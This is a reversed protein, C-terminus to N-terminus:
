CYRWPTLRKELVLVSKNLFYSVVGIAIMGSIIEASRGGISYVSWIYYGIGSRGGVFEAAVICMWGVGLGIRLGTIVSPLVAPFIVRFIIDKKKAGCSRAADLLIRDIQKVGMVTNVLVPFFAGVFVVLLQVYTSPKDTFAFLIYGLPIWALPPIPRLMEIITNIFLEFTKFYGMIMGLSFGLIFSLSVGQLVVKLSSLTLEQISKNYLQDGTTILVFFVKMTQVPGPLNVLNNHALFYWVLFFIILSSMSIISNNNKYKERGHKISVGTDNNM